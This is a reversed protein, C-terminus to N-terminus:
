LEEHPVMRNKEPSITKFQNKYPHMAICQLLWSELVKHHMEDLKEKFFVELKQSALYQFYNKELPIQEPYMGLSIFFRFLILQKDFTHTATNFLYMILDFTEPAAACPPLFYYSLELIHHFFILDYKALAFPISFIEIEHIKYLSPLLSLHYHIITGHNLQEAIDSRTNNMFAEIRGHEKDFISIKQKYPHYNRLVIGCNKQM